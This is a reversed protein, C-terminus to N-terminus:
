FKELVLAMRVFVFFLFFLEDIISFLFRGQIM